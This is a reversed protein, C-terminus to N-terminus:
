KKKTPVPLAMREVHSGRWYIRGCSRCQLFADHTDYVYPPVLDRADRKDLPALPENCRSCRTLPLPEVPFAALVQEMQERVRDSRIFVHNAALPRDALGTDRTLIMRDQELSLRLIENDDLSRGYLVDLGLLRMRKALRGLMVDAIFKM